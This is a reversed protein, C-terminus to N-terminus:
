GSFIPRRDIETLLEAVNGTPAVEHHAHFRQNRDRWYLTWIGRAETYRLRALPYRIWEPGTREPGFPARREVITLCRADIECEIRVQHRTDAPSTNPAGASCAPSPSSPCGLHLWRHGTRRM